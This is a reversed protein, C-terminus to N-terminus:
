RLTSSSPLLNKKSRYARTCHVHHCTFPSNNNKAIYFKVVSARLINLQLLIQFTLRVESLLITYKSM